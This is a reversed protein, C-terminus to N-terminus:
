TLRAVMLSEIPFEECFKRFADDSQVKKLTEVLKNEEPFLKQLAHRKHLTSLFSKSAISRAQVSNDKLYSEARRICFAYYELDSGNTKPFVRMRNGHPDGLLIAKYITEQAGNNRLFDVLASFQDFHTHVGFNVMQVKMKSKMKLALDLATRESVFVDQKFSDKAEPGIPINLDEKQIFKAQFIFELIDLRGCAVIWHILNMGNDIIQKLDPLHALDQFFKKIENFEKNERLAKYFKFTNEVSIKQAIPPTQKTEAQSTKATAANAGLQSALKTAGSLKLQKSIWDKIKQIESTIQQQLKQIQKAVASPIVQPQNELLQELEQRKAVVWNLKNDIESTIALDKLDPHIEQILQERKLNFIQNKLIDQKLPIQKRRKEFGALAPTNGIPKHEMVEQFLYVAIQYKELKIKILDTEKELGAIQYNKFPSFQKDSMLAEALDLVELMDKPKNDLFIKKNGGKIPYVNRMAAM